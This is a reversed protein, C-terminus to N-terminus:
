SNGGSENLTLKYLMNKQFWMCACVHVSKGM